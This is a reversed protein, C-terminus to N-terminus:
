ATGKVYTKLVNETAQEVTQGKRIRQYITTHKLEAKECAESLSMVAGNFQVKHVNSRNRAQEIPTAWVCNQASYAEENKLREISHRPTPRPGMDFLFNEFDGWRMGPTRLKYREYSKHNPNTCRKWMDKWIRYEATNSLGHKTNATSTRAKHLCGCSQVLGSTLSYGVTTKSKGCICTCTWWTEQRKPNVHSFAVVTLQGFQQGILSLRNKAKAM